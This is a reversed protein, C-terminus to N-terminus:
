NKIKMQVKTLNLNFTCSPKVVSFHSYDLITPIYYTGFFFVNEGKKEKGGRCTQARVREIGRHGCTGSPSLIDLHGPM